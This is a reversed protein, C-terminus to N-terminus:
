KSIRTAAAGTVTTTSSVRMLSASTGTTAPCSASARGSRLRRPTVTRGDTQIAGGRDGNPDRFLSGAVNAFFHPQFDYRDRTLTLASLYLNEKQLQFSRSNEVALSLTESLTPKLKEGRLRDELIEGQKIDDPNRKSYKTDISFQNTHGLARGEKEGIIRYVEKDASRRYHSTSCAPM